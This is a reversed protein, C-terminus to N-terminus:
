LDRDAEDLLFVESRSPRELYQSPTQQTMGYFVRNFSRISGFGSSLAAQSISYKGSDLLMKVRAVRYQSLLVTFPVGFVQRIRKSIYFYSYGLYDAVDRLNIEACLNDQIFSVIRATLDDDNEAKYFGNERLFAEAARYLLSKGGFLTQEASYFALLQRNLESDILFSYREPKKRSFMASFDAMVDRSFLITYYESESRTHYSHVANPPILIGLGAHLSHPHGDVTVEVQGGVCFTIELCGHLHAPYSFDVNHMPM